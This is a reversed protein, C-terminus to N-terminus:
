QPSPLIPHSCVLTSLFKYSFPSSNALALPKFKVFDLIHAGTRDRLRGIYPTGVALALLYEIDSASREVLRRRRQGVGTGALM